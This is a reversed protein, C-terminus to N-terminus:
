ADQTPIPGPLDAAWCHPAWRRARSCGSIPSTPACRPPTNSTSSAGAPDSQPKCRTCRHMAGEIMMLAYELPAISRSCSAGVGLLGPRREPQRLPRVRPCTARHITYTRALLVFGTPHASLWKAYAPEHRKFDGDDQESM